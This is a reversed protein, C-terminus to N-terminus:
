GPKTVGGSLDPYQRHHEKWIDYVTEPALRLRRAILQSASTGESNPKVPVGLDRLQAVTQAIFADRGRNKWARERNRHPPRRGLAFDAAWDALPSDRWADSGRQRLETLILRVADWSIPDEWAADVLWGWSQPRDVNARAYHEESTTSMKLPPACPGYFYELHDLYYEPDDDRDNPIAIRRGLDARRQEDM